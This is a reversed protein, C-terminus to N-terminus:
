SKDLEEGFTSLRRRDYFCHEPICNDDNDLRNDSFGMVWNSFNCQYPQPADKGVFFFYFPYGSTVRFPHLLHESFALLRVRFM